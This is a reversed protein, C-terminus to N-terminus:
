WPSTLCIILFYGRAWARKDKVNKAQVWRSSYHREPIFRGGPHNVYGREKLLDNYSMVADMKMGREQDREGISRLLVASYRMEEM